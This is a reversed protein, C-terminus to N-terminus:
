RKDGMHKDVTQLFERAQVDLGSPLGNQLAMTFAGQAQPLNDMKLFLRGMHFYIVGEAAKTQNLQLAHTFADLSEFNRKLQDLAQGRLMQLRSRSASDLELDGALLKDCVALAEDAQGAILLGEAEEAGRRVPLPLPARLRILDQRLSEAISRMNDPLDGALAEEVLVTARDFFRRDRLFGALLVKAVGDDPNEILAKRCEDEGALRQGAAFKDLARNVHYSYSAHVQDRPPGLLTVVFAGKVRRNTIVISLEEGEGWPILVEHHQEDNRQYLLSEDKLRKVHLDCNQDGGDVVLKWNRVQIQDYSVRLQFSERPALTFSDSSWVEYIGDDAAAAGGAPILLGCLLLTLGAVVLWTQFKCFVRSPPKIMATRPISM